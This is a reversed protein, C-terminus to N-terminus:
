ENIDEGSIEIISSIDIVQDVIKLIRKYELDIASVMGKRKLYEQQDYYVIEIMQGVRIQHIKRNLIDCADPMLEKAPVKIKEKKQIYTSFGRLSDFPLFIQARNTRSHNNRM